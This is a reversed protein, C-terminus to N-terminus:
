AGLADEAVCRSIAVESASTGSSSWPSQRSAWSPPSEPSSSPLSGPRRPSKARAKESRPVTPRLSIAASRLSAFARRASKTGSWGRESSAEQVALEASVKRAKGDIAHWQGGGPEESGANSATVALRGSARLRSEADPEMLRGASGASVKKSQSDMAVGCGGATTAPAPLRDPLRIHPVEVARLRMMPRRRTTEQCSM